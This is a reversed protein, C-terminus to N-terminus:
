GTSRDEVPVTESLGLAAIRADLDDDSLISSPVDNEDKEDMTPEIDAM